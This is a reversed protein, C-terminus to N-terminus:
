SLKLFSRMKELGISVKERVPSRLWAFKLRNLNTDIEELQWKLKLAELEVERIDQWREAQSGRLFENYTGLIPLFGTMDSSHMTDFGVVWWGKPVEKSPNPLHGSFYAYTLGGHVEVSFHRHISDYGMKYCPHSRPIAVYGNAVGGMGAVEPNTPCTFEILDM